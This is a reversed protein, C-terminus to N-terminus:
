NIVLSIARERQPIEQSEKLTRAQQEHFPRFKPLALHYKNQFSSDELQRSNQQYTDHYEECRIDKNNYNIIQPELQGGWNCGSYESVMLIKLDNKVRMKEKTRERARARAEARSQGRAFDEESGGLKCRKTTTKKRKFKVVSSSQKRKQCNINEEDDSDGGKYFTELFRVKSQYTMMTSNSSSRNTEEVLDKISIQSKTILWDLTKSAKDFGLLDQLCFFKRAVDISLRVRRDRPGRATYIKNHGDKKLNVTKMKYPSIVSDLLDGHDEYNQQKQQQMTCTVNETVPFLFRDCMVPNHIKKQHFYNFPVNDDKEVDFYSNLPTFLNTPSPSSFQSFPNSFM